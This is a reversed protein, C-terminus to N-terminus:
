WAIKLSYISYEKVQLLFQGSIYHSVGIHIVEIGFM